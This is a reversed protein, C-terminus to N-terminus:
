QNGIKQKAVEVAATAEELARGSIRKAGRVLAAMRGEQPLLSSSPVESVRKIMDSQDDRANRNSADFAEPAGTFIAVPTCSTINKQGAFFGSKLTFEQVEYVSEGDIRTNVIERSVVPLVRLGKEFILKINANEPDAFQVFFGVSGDNASAVRNIVETASQMYSINTARGMGDPDIQQLFQFSATAGSNQPPLIFPIRRALGIVDGFGQLRENKTVMWLGECALDRRIVRLKKFDDPRSKAERAYVDLQAFGIGVPNKLVRNINDLTGGSPTCRYGTFYASALAQPLPPCFTSNYAGKEGGTYISKEQAMAASSILGIVAIAALREFYSYKM